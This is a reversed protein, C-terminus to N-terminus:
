GVTVKGDPRASATPGGERWLAPAPRCPPLTAALRKRSCAPPFRRGPTGHDRGCGSPFAGGASARISRPRHCLTKKTSSSPGRWRVTETCTRPTGPSPQSRRDHLDLHDQGGWGAEFARLINSESESPPASSLLFPNEFAIGTFVTSRNGM